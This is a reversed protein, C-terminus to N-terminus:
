SATVQSCLEFLFGAIEELPLVADAVTAAIAAEPMARRAATGPDQVIAIGGRAKIAALGAAGDVNAGTLVVGIARDGYAHAVSQFFVDISPRAHNVREEVSLAFHGNEVLLHYDSPAVYVRGREIPEKDDPESVRRDVHEQLLLELLGRQSEPGRHQVVVLTATVDDKLGDLLTSVADLGGWSAGVAILDYSM